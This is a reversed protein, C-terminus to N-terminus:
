CATRWYIDTEIGQRQGSTGEGMWEELFAAAGSPFPGGCPKSSPMGGMGALLGMNGDIQFVNEANLLSRSLGHELMMSIIRGANGGDLFRAFFAIHWAGPWGFSRAGHEIRSYLAKKAADFLDRDKNWAIEGGPYVAWLHSTHVMDPTLEKEQSAWEMLRGMSDIQNPRLRNLVKEFEKEKDNHIGLVKGAELCAIM